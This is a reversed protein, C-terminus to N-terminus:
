HWPLTHLGAHGALTLTEGLARAAGPQTGLGAVLLATLPPCGAGTKSARKSIGAAPGGAQTGLPLRAWAGPTGTVLLVPLPVNACPATIVSTNIKKKKKCTM